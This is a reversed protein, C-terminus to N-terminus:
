HAYVDVTAYVVSERWIIFHLIHVVILGCRWPLAGFNLVRYINM